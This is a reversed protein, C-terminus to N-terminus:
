EEDEDKEIYYEGEKINTVIDKAIQKILEMKNNNDFNYVESEIDSEITDLDLKNIDEEDLDNIYENVIDVVGNFALIDLNRYLSQTYYEYYGAQFIKELDTVGEVLGQAQAEEIYEKIDRAYEWIESYYIPIYSDALESIVDCVYSSDSYGNSLFSNLCDSEDKLEGLLDYEREDITM